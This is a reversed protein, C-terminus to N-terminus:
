NRMAILVESPIGWSEIISDEQISWRAQNLLDVITIPRCGGVIQPTLQWISYWTNAVLRGLRSQGYTLSTACLLGGDVLIRHADGLSQKAYQPELLDLVYTAVFRDVSCDDCPLPLSGDLQVIKARTPWSAVSQRALSVMHPSVDAGVYSCSEPLVDRLIRSAFTGTGCGLEFVATAHRLDGATVLRDLAAREIPAQTDQLRGIRDYLRAALTPSLGGGLERRTVSSPPQREPLM